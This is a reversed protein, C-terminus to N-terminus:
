KYIYCKGEFICSYNEELLWNGCNIIVGEPVEWLGRQHNHGHVFTDCNNKRMLERAKEFYEEEPVIRKKNINRSNSGISLAFRMGLDPHLWKFLFRNLKFDLIKRFFRYRGDGAAIGDGHCVYVRRGHLEAVASRVAEIGLEKCFFDGYGFDHNGKILKVECGGDKLDALARLLRFHGSPVCFDYEYWFEFLDGAIFLHTAKGCLQKLFAIFHEEREPVAALPQAGFHADSVFYAAKNLLRQSNELSV